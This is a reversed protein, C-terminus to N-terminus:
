PNLPSSVIPSPRVVHPIEILYTRDEPNKGWHVCSRLRDFFEASSLSDSWGIQKVHNIGIAVHVIELDKCYVKVIGQVLPLDSGFLRAMAGRALDRAFRDRGWHDGVTFILEIIFRDGVAPTIRVQPISNFQEFLKIVRKEVDESPMCLSPSATCLLFFILLSTFKVKKIRDM